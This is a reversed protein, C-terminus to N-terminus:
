NATRASRSSRPFRHVKIHKSLHDSRAFKKECVPCQYPKVGSHSRRHRSLEDSRSFRWGCGPWTCAFPKEGTHRRLHAKLHSSKTYMKSCGPFTCKHMKILEAGPNKPFKQGVLLGAPGPGLPGAGIPKAAIPVPAIRVFRSPLSLASPAVQPVLAFTQGQINVLLQTVKVNEPTQGPSSPGTGAEQKVPVPQIQLLVPVPGDPASGGGPGQAGGTNASGPPPTGRERGAPGAHPHSRHPGASPLIAESARCDSPPAEKAASEMNEELFEEIEELTPQFPRPVEDSDGVPFEPFCFHEGKVPAPARRWAGWTVAASSAGVSGSGLTAQSLLFDLISDQGEAGQGRGCCSCLAQSNPSACSCPSSADSDDESLPSPLMHYARRGALRAGLYGVPCKPSSFTEDVPLLHDVM